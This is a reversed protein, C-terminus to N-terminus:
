SKIKTIPMSDYLPNNVTIPARPNTSSEKNILKLNYIAKLLSFTSAIFHHFIMTIKNTSDTTIFKTNM